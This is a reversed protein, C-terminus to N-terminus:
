AVVVVILLLSIANLGSRPTLPGRAGARPLPGFRRQEATGIPIAAGERCRGVLSRFESTPQNHM